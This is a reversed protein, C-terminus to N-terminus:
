KKNKNKMNTATNLILGLVEQVNFKYPLWLIMHQFIPTDPGHFVNKSRCLVTIGESVDCVGGGVVM